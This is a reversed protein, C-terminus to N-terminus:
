SAAARSSIPSRKKATGERSTYKKEVREWPLNRRQRSLEDRLYTLEKEKRLLEKRATTWEQSNVIKHNKIEPAILYKLWRRRRKIQDKHKRLQYGCKSTGRGRISAKGMINSLALDKVPDLPWRYGSSPLWETSIVAMTDRIKSVHGRHVFIAYEQAPIKIALIEAPLNKDSSVEFGAIYDFGEPNNMDFILGFAGKGTRGTVKGLLTPTGAM